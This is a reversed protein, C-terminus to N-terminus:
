PYLVVWTVHLFVLSSQTLFALKQQLSSVTQDLSIITSYNSAIPPMSVNSVSPFNNSTTPISSVIPPISPVMTPLPNSYTFPVSHYSPQSTPLSVLPVIMPLSPIYTMVLPPNYTSIRPLSVSSPEASTVSPTLGLDQAEQALCKVNSHVLHTIDHLLNVGQDSDQLDKKLAEIAQIFDQNYNEQILWNGMKDHKTSYKQVQKPPVRLADDEDDSFDFSNHETTPNSDHTILNDNLIRLFLLLHNSCM